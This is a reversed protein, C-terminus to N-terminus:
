LLVLTVSMNFETAGNSYPDMLHLYTLRKEMASEWGYAHTRSYPNGYYNVRTEMPTAQFDM